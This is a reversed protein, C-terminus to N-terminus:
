HRRFNFLNIMFIDDIYRLYLLPKRPVDSIIDEELRAMVINAYQRVMRTGVATGQKQLYIKNEFIFYNQELIFKTLFETVAFTDSPPLSCCIAQLSAEHPINTYLLKVDM